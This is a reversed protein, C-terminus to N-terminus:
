NVRYYIVNGGASPQLAQQIANEDTGQGANAQAGSGSIGGSAGGTGAGMGLAGALREAQAQGPPPAQRFDVVAHVRVQTERKGSKVSGTAYISFVKSETSIADVLQKESHVEIPQLGAMTLMSGSSGKGQLASVFKKPSGFLPVGPVFMRLMRVATVFKMQEAPDVRIPAQPVAYAQALTLLTLENATNVNVQGSGWVTLVRGKPDDNPDVFTQWFEDTVGRVLRLEELSDFAANKREYPKDLLQYYSDEAAAAQATESSLDCPFLDQDPDVWDIIASCITQRDHFNGNADRREFMPDYQPGLMMGMLQQAVRQQSFADGKAAANVNVKSDEDVISVEFRAGPLGLNKGESVDFGLSAFAEAGAQDNFAGLIQDAYEWVPIQPSGRFLAQLILAVSKRMTPEAAILLRSLNVASRAAYEARVSDRESLASGLEASTEDQFETLMVSLITLAGVVMLLAVGRQRRRRRAARTRRALAREACAPAAQPSAVSALRTPDTPTM